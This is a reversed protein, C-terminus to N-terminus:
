KASQPVSMRKGGVIPQGNSSSSSSSAGNSGGAAGRNAAAVAAARAAPTAADEDPFLSGGIFQARLTFLVPALMLGFVGVLADRQARL